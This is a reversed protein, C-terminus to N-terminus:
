PILSELGEAAAFLHNDGPVAAGRWWRCIDPLDLRKDEDITPPSSSSRSGNKVGHIENFRQVIRSMIPNIRDPFEDNFLNVDSYSRLRDGYCRMMLVNLRDFESLEM